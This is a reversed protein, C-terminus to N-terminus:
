ELFDKVSAEIGKLIEDYRAITIETIDEFGCSTIWKRLQDQPKAPVQDILKLLADVQEQDITLTNAVPGKGNLDDGTAINFILCTLYRRGYTFGSGVEQSKSMIDKGTMSKNTDPVEVWEHERHGGRHKVHCGVRMFGDKTCEEQGFQLSFGHEHWVPKAESVVAAIDAYHYKGQDGPTRKAIVPMAGQADTMASAYCQEAQRDLIREQMGMLREMKEIDVDPNMAAREIVQIIAGAEVEAVESM